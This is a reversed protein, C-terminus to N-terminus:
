LKEVKQKKFKLCNKYLNKSINCMSTINYDTTLFSNKEHDKCLSEMTELENICLKEYRNNKESDM